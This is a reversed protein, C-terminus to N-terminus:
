KKIHYVLKTQDLATGIFLFVAFSGVAQIILGPIAILQAEFGGFLIVEAIYYGGITILSSFVIAILSRKTIIKTGQAKAIYLCTANLSKIIFTPIVYIAFGSFVDALSEGIAGAIIGFPFPMLVSALYMVADGLHIYGNGYVIHIMTTVTIMATFLATYVITKIKKNM